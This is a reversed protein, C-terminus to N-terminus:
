RVYRRCGCDCERCEYATCPAGEISPDRELAHAVFAATRPDDHGDASLVFAHVVTM